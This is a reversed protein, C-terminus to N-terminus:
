YYKIKIVSKIELKIKNIFNFGQKLNLCNQNGIKFKFLKQIERMSECEFNINRNKFSLNSTFCSLDDCKFINNFKISLFILYFVFM